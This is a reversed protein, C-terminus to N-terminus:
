DLDGDIEKNKTPIKQNSIESEISKDCNIIKRNKGSVISTNMTNEHNLM